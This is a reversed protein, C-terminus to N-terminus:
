LLPLVDRIFAEPMIVRVGHGSTNVPRFHKDDTIIFAANSVIAADVFKNDDVDDHIVRFRYTPSVRRVNGRLVGVNDIIRLMTDARSKGSRRQVVEEYELM